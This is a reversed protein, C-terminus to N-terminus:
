KKAEWENCYHDSCTYLTGNGLRFGRDGKNALECYHYAIGMWWYCNNCSDNLKLNELLEDYKHIWYTIQRAMDDRDNDADMLRNKLTTNEKSLAVVDYSKELDDMKEGMRM